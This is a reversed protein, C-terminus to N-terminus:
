NTLNWEDPDLNNGRAFEEWTLIANSTDMTALAWCGIRHNYSWYGTAKNSQHLVDGFRLMRGLAAGLFSSATYHSPALKTHGYRDVLFAYRQPNRLKYLHEIVGYELFQTTDRLCERLDDYVGWEETYGGYEFDNLRGEPTDQWSYPQKDHVDPNNCTHLWVGDGVYTTVLHDQDLVCLPCMPFSPPRQATM